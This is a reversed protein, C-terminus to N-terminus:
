ENEGCCGLLFIRQPLLKKRIMTILVEGAELEFNEITALLEIAIGECDSVQVKRIERRRSGLLGELCSQIFGRSKNTERNGKGGWCSGKRVVGNERSRRIQFAAENTNKWGPKPTKWYSPDNILMVAFGAKVSGQDYVMQELRGIDM